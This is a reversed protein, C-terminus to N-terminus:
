FLLSIWFGNSKRMFWFWFWTKKQNRWMCYCYAIFSRKKGEKKRKCRLKWFPMAKIGNGRYLCMIYEYEEWFGWKSFRWVQQDERLVFLFPSLHRLRGRVLHRLRHYHPVIHFHLIALGILRVVHFGLEGLEKPMATRSVISPEATSWVLNLCNITKLIYHRLWNFHISIKKKNTPKFKQKSFLHSLDKKRQWIRKRLQSHHRSNQKLQQIPQHSTPRSIEDSWKIKFISEPLLSLFSVKSVM